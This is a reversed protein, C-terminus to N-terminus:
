SGITEAAYSCEGSTEIDDYQNEDGNGQLAIEIDNGVVTVAEYHAEALQTTTAESFGVCVYITMTTKKGCIQHM